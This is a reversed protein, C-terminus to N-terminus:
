HDLNLEKRIKTALHSISRLRHTIDDELLYRYAAKVCPYAEKLLSELLLIRNELATTNGGETQSSKKM